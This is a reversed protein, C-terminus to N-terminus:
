TPGGLRAAIQGLVAEARERDTDRADALWAAADAPTPACVLAEWAGAVDSRLRVLTGERPDLLVHDEGCRALVRSARPAGAGPGDYLLPGGLGCISLEALSGERLTDALRRRLLPAAAFATLWPERAHLDALRTASLWVPRSGPPPVESARQLLTELSDGIAGLAEAQPGPRVRGQADVWLRHLKVTRDASPACWVVADQLRTLGSELARPLRGTARAEQADALLVDLADEGDVTLVTPVEPAYLRAQVYPLVDIADGGDLRRRGAGEDRLNWAEALPGGGVAPAAMSVLLSGAGLVAVLWAEPPPDTGAWVLDLVAEVYGPDSPYLGDHARLVRALVGRELAAEEGFSPSVALEPVAVHPPRRPAAGGHAPRWRYRLVPQQEAIQALAAELATPDGPDAPLELDLAFELDTAACADRWGRVAEAADPTRELDVGLTVRRGAGAAFARLLDRDPVAAISVELAYAIRHRPRRAMAEMFAGAAPVDCEVLEGFLSVTQATVTRADIWDLEALVRDVAHRRPVGGSVAPRDLEVGVVAAAAAPLVGSLWPSPLVSLDDPRLTADAAPPDPWARALALCPLELEDGMGGAGAEVAHLGEERLLAKLAGVAPPAPEPAWLVAVDAGPRVVDHVLSPLTSMRRQVVMRAPTGCARLSAIAYACRLNHRTGREGARARPERWGTAADVFAVRPASTM